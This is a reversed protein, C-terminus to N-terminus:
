HVKDVDCTAGVGPCNLSGDKNNPIAGAFGTRADPQGAGPARRLEHDLEKNWWYGKKIAARLDAEKPGIEKDNDTYSNNIGYANGNNINAGEDYTSATNSDGDYSDRKNHSRQHL